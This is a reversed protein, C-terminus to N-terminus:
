LLKTCYLTAVPNFCSAGTNPVNLCHLIHARAMSILVFSRVPRHLCAFNELTLPDTQVAVSLLVM